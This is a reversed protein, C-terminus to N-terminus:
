RNAKVLSLLDTQLEKISRPAPAHRYVVHYTNASYCELLWSGGDKIQQSQEETSPLSWFGSRNVGDFFSTVQASPIREPEEAKVNDDEYERKVFAIASGDKEVKL